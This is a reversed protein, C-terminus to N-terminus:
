ATELSKCPQGLDHPIRYMTKVEMKSGESLNSMKRTDRRNLQDCYDLQLSLELMPWNKLFAWSAYFHVDYTNVMRYEWSELYGFRGFKQMQAETLPNLETELERWSSDYEFWMTAGNVIYYSENFLASRYWEPLSDDEITGHQWNSIETRWQEGKSIAVEVLKEVADEEVGVFRTYWRKYHRAKGEFHVIPMHWVLCFTCTKTQESPLQFQSSVAIGLQQDSGTEGSLSRSDALTDWVESGTKSCPDFSSYSINRDDAEESVIAYTVPMSKISHSLTM